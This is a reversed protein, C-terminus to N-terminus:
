IGEENLSYKVTNSNTKDQISKARIRSEEYKKIELGIELCSNLCRKRM